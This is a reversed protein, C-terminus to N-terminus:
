RAAPDDPYVTQSDPADPADSDGPSAVAPSDTPVDAPDRSTGDTENSMTEETNTRSISGFRNRCSRVGM